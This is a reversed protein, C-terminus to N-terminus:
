QKTEKQTKVLKLLEEAFELRKQRSVGHATPHLTYYVNVSKGGIQMTKVGIDQHPVAFDGTGQAFKSNLLNPMHKGFLLINDPKIRDLEKAFIHEFCNDVMVASPKSSDTKPSCKVADMYIIRDYVQALEKPNEEICNDLIVKAYLPLWYWLPTGGYLNKGYQQVFAAPEKEQLEKMGVRFNISKKGQSLTEKVGPRYQDKGNIMAEQVFRGGGKHINLGVCILKGDYKDGIYPESFENWPAKDAGSPIGKWCYCQKTCTEHLLGSYFDKGKYFERPSKTSPSKREEIQGGPRSQSRRAM